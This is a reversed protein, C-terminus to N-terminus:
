DFNPSAPTGLTEVCLTVFTLTNEMLPDLNRRLATQQKRITHGAAIAAASSTRLSTGSLAKPTTTTLRTPAVFSFSLARASRSFTGGNSKRLVAFSINPSCSPRSSFPLTANAATGLVGLPTGTM